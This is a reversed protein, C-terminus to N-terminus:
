EFRVYYANYRIGKVQGFITIHALKVKEALLNISGSPQTIFFPRFAYPFMRTNHPLLRILLSEQIVTVLMLVPLTLNPVIQLTYNQCGPLHGSNATHLKSM